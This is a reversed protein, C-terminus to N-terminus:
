AFSLIPKYFLSIEVNLFETLTKFFFPTLYRLNPYRVGNKDDYNVSNRLRM